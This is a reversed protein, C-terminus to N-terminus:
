WRRRRLLDERLFRAVRFNFRAETYGANTQTGTTDCDEMARGNWIQRAM